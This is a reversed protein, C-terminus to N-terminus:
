PRAREKLFLLNEKLVWGELGYSTNILIYDGAEKKFEVSAGGPLTLWDSGITEPIKKVVCSNELVALSRDLNWATRLLEGGSLLSFLIFLLFLLIPWSSKKLFCYALFIMSANLSLLFALLLIDPHVFYSSRHQNELSMLDEMIELSEHIQQNMPMLTTARRLYLVGRSQEGSLFSLVGRNFLYTGNHSWESANDGYLILAESYSGKLFHTEAVGVWEPIESLSDSASLFLISVFFVSLLAPRIRKVTLIFTLFLLGPLLLLYILPNRYLTWGEARKSNNLPMLSFHFSSSDESVALDGAVTFNLHSEPRTEVRGSQPNLWSYAPITIEYNNLVEPRLTYVKESFGEFGDQVARLEQSDRVSPNLGQPFLPEPMNLYNLNGKGEIRVSLSLSSGPIVSRDSLDITINFDGVAGSDRVADPLPLVKISQRSTSRNVGAISVEAASLTLTGERSPTLMWTEMPVNFLTMRDLGSFGIEGLGEINELIAGGPSSFSVTEPLDIEEMNNMLLVLAVSQGVYLTEPIHEWGLILPYHLHREDSQLIPIFLERSSLPDPLVVSSGRSLRPLVTVPPITYIGAGGSRLTYIVQLVTGFSGDENQKTLQATYPGSVKQIGEPWQPDKITVSQKGPYPTVFKLSFRQNELITDKWQADLFQDQEQGSLACPILFIILGLLLSIVLRQSFRFRNTRNEM